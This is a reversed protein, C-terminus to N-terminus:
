PRARARPTGSSAGAGRRTSRGSSWRRSPGRRTSASSSRGRARRGEQLVVIWDGLLKLFRERAFFRKVKKEFNGPEEDKWNFLDKRDLSWTVGYYFDLLHTLDFVQPATMLEPTDRHYRRIQAFGAEIADRKRAGKTEVVAVPLGNVLFVM